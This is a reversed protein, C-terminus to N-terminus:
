EKPVEEEQKTIRSGEKSIRSENRCRSEEAEGWFADLTKQVEMLSARRNPNVELISSLVELFEPSYKDGLSDLMENLMSEDLSGHAYDYCNAVPGLQAAELLTMGMSFVGEKRLALDTDLRTFNKLKEPAYNTPPTLVARYHDDILDDHIAKLHGDPNIFIDM